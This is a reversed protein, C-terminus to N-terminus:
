STKIVIKGFQLGDKMCEFAQRFEALPFVRHIAPHIRHKKVFSMMDRFDEENGMTSGLVQIQKWFIRRVDIMPPNGATAGYIVIRGGPNILGLLENFVPGGAGDCVLDVGGSKDLDAQGKKFEGERTYNIGVTAGMKLARAIKDDSSSAVAIRAGAALAMQFIISAVGGGIGSILISEGERLRGKTFLARYATLGALPLAASEEVTLHDPSPVLNAVPVKVYEALTGQDPMGLIKYDSSQVKQDSGWNLSPNIVVSRGIWSDWRSQGVSHVTGAADSGLIAPVRIKSYLGQVIWWDRHNLAAAKVAVVAEDPSPVPFDVEQIALHDLSGIDRCVMAKMTKM